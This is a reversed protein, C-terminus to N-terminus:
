ICLFSFLFKCVNYGDVVSMILHKTDKFIDSQSNGEIGGFVQDFDYNKKSGDGNAGLVLVSLKGDKLVSNQCNKEEETRSMPRIRVYVRIRGKLDEMENHLRKRANQERTLDRHLQANFQQIERAQEIEGHMQRLENEAATARVEAESSKKNAVEVLMQANSMEQAAKARTDAMERNLRDIERDKAKILDEHRKSVDKEHTEKQMKYAAFEQAFRMREEAMTQNLARIEAAHKAERERQELARQEAAQQEKLVRENEGSTLSSLTQQLSQLKTTEESRAFVAEAVKAKYSDIESRLKVVEQESDRLAQGGSQSM